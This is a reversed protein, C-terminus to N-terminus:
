SSFPPPNSTGSRNFFSLTVVWAITPTNLLGVITLLRPTHLPPPPRWSPHHSSILTDQRDGRDLVPSAWGRETCGSRHCAQYSDLAIVAGQETGRLPNRGPNEVKDPATDPLKRPHWLEPVLYGLYRTQSPGSYNDRRTSRPYRPTCSGRAQGQSLSSEIVVFLLQLVSATCRPRDLDVSLRKM